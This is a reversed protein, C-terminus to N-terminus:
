FIVQFCNMNSEVYAKIQGNHLTVISKVISLGLGNGDKVTDVQYFSNWINELETEPILLGTNCITLTVKNSTRKLNIVINGKEDVYKFANSLLNIIVQGIRLSDGQILCNEEAYVDVKIFKEDSLYEFKNICTELLENLLIDEKVLTFSGSEYSSLDLLDKILGNMRIGEDLIVQVYYNIDEKTKPLGRQLGDAYGLIVSIPNKLEHSVDSVFRRRMNELNKERSLEKELKSNSENLANINNSLEKSMKNVSVYLEGIEDDGEEKLAGTFDLSAIKEAADKLTVIPRSILSAMFIIIIFALIYIVLTIITLFLLFVQQVERFIGMPKNIILLDGNNLIYGYIIKQELFTEEHSVFFYGDKINSSAKDKIIELEEPTIYKSNDKSVRGFILKNDPTFILASGGTRIELDKIANHTKNYIQNNSYEKSIKIITYKNYFLFFDDMFFFNILMILALM